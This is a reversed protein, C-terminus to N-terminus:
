AMKKIYEVADGVTKINEAAENTFEVGFAEEIETIVQFIDLSDFGLDKTFRTELAISGEPVNLTNVIIDKIKEFEM